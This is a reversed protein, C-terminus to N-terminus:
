LMIFQLISVIFRHEGVASIRSRQYSAASVTGGGFGCYTLSSSSVEMWVLSELVRPSFWNRGCCGRPHLVHVSHSHSFDVWWDGEWSGYSSLGKEDWHFMVVARIRFRKNQISASM